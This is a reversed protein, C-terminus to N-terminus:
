VFFFSMCDEAAVYLGTVQSSDVHDPTLHPVVGRSTSTVLGPTEIAKISQNAFTYLGKRAFSKSSQKVVSFSSGAM